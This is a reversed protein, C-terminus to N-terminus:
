TSNMEEFTKRDDGHSPQGNHFIQTVFSWPYTGNTTLVERDKGWELSIVLNIILNVRRTIGTPCSSSVRGSCRLEGWTKPPTRTVRNTTRNTYNQLDNNTRKRKGMTNDTRRRSGRQYRWVRRLKATLVFCWM